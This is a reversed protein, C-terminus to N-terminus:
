VGGPFLENFVEFTNTAMYSKIKEILESYTKTIDTNIFYELEPKTLGARKGLNHKLTKRRLSKACRENHALVYPILIDADYTYPTKQSCWDFRGVECIRSNTDYTYAECRYGDYVLACFLKTLVGRATVNWDANMLYAHLLANNNVVRDVKVIPKSIRIYRCMSAVLRPLEEVTLMHPPFDFESKCSVLKRVPEKSIEGARLQDDTLYYSYVLTEFTLKVSKRYFPLKYKMIEGYSLLDHSTPGHSTPDHSTPDHSTPDHSTPGHSISADTNLPQYMNYQIICM